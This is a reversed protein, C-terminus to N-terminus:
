LACLQYLIETPVEEQKIKTNNPLKVSLNKTKAVVKQLMEISETHNSIKGSFFLVDTQVDLELAEWTKQIFYSQELSSKARFTKALILEEKSFAILDILENDNFNVFLASSISNHLSHFFSVLLSLHNVFKPNLLTRSLFSHKSEPMSWLVKCHLHKVDNSMIRTKPKLCNFSLLDSELKRDYYENPIITTKDDVYIVNIQKFNYSFFSYDFILREIAKLYDSNLKFAVSNQYFVTENTPCHISFYFGSPTLRISLIYKKSETFDINNPLFM